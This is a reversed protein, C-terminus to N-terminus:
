CKGNRKKQDGAAYYQHQCIIHSTVMSVWLWGRHEAVLVHLEVDITVINLHVVPAVLYAEM